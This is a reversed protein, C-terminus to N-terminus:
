RSSRRALSWCLWPRGALREALAPRWVAAVAPLLWVLSAAASIALLTWAQLYFKFVTNMRDSIARCCPWRWLCPDPVLATGIMFLVARKADPLGPRLLLVGAWVALPLALWAIQVGIVLLVAVMIM